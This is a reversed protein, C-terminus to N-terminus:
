AARKDRFMRVEIGFDHTLWEHDGPLVPLAHLISLAMCARGNYLTSAQWLRRKRIM